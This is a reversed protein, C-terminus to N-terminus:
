VLLFLFKKDIQSENVDVRWIHYHYIVKGGDWLRAGFSASWAYLLDGNDCYKAEDLELDSYYWKDSTFFNGVRLVPYKGEALLEPKKYARGNRLTCVESLKVTKWLHQHMASALLSTRLGLTEQLRAEQADSAKDIDAFAADLKAVIRQQEALPPLPVSMGNIMDKSIVTQAAGLSGSRLGLVQQSMYYYLYTQLLKDEHPRLAAVSRGIACDAGLNIKGCTAGVVCLFVDGKEGMKKPETTWEKIVPSLAGFEGAKVFPTGIGDKNCAKGPPAQGMVVDVVDGLQVTRWM